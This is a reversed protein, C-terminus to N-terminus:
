IKFNKNQLDSPVHNTGLVQLRLKCQIRGEIAQRSGQTAEQLGGKASDLSLQRGQSQDGHELFALFCILFRGSLHFYPSPSSLFCKRGRKYLPGQMKMKCRAEHLMYSTTTSGLGASASEENKCSEWIIGTWKLGLNGLGTIAEM